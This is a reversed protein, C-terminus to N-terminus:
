THNEAKEEEICDPCTGAHTWWFLHEDPDTDDIAEAFTQEQAIDRWDTPLEDIGDFDNRDCDRCALRISGTIIVPAELPDSLPLEPQIDM